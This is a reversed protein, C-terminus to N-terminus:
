LADSCMSLIPDSFISALTAFRLFTISSDTARYRPWFRTFKNRTNGSAHSVVKLVTAKVCHRGRIIWFSQRLHCLLRENSCHHLLCHEMMIILETVRHSYPLIIPHRTNYDFSGNGIRGGVRLLGTEDLFPTLKIISSSSPLARGKQLLGIEDPYRASQAYKICVLAAQRIEDTTLPGKVPRTRNIFRFMFAVTRRVRIFRSSRALFLDFSEVPTFKLEAKVLGIWNDAAEASRATVNEPWRSEDKALFAPGTLWRHESTLESPLLGRSVDDAPNLAGPIHRWDSKNSM